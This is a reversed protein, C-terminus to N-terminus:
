FEAPDRWPKLLLLPSPPPRLDNREKTLLNLPFLTKFYLLHNKHWWM